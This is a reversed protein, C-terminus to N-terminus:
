CRHLGEKCKNSQQLIRLRNRIGLTATWRGNTLGNGFVKKLLDRTKKLLNTKLLILQSWWTSFHASLSPRLARQLIVQWEETSFYTTFYYLYRLVKRRLKKQFITRILAKLPCVIGETTLKGRIQLILASQIVQSSDGELQDIKTLRKEITPMNLEILQKITLM